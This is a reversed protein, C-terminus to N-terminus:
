PPSGGSSVRGSPRRTSRPSSTASIIPSSTGAAFPLFRRLLDIKREGFRAIETFATAGAQMAMLTLLLVEQLPYVVKGAQRHDPLDKFCGLFVTTEYDIGGLTSTTDM